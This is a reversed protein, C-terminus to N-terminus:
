SFNVVSTQTLSHCRERTGQSLTIPKFSTEVTVSFLGLANNDM